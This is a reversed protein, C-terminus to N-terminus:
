SDQNLKKKLEEFGEQSLMLKGEMDRPMEEEPSLPEEVEKVPAPAQEKVNHKNVTRKEKRRRLWNSTLYFVVAFLVLTSVSRILANRVVAPLNLFDSILKNM